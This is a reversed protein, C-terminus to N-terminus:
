NYKIQNQNENDNQDFHIFKTNKKTKFASNEKHLM